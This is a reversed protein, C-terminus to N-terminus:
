RRTRLRVIIEIGDLEKDAPLKPLGQVRVGEADIDILDGADGDYFHHHPVTKPDYFVKAPGVIVQRILKNAVLLGLTNYVTAKSVRARDANVVEYVEEASLHRAESFLACAIDTRQPTPKIGHERLLKAIAECNHAPSGETM